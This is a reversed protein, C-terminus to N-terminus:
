NKEGLAKYEFKRLMDEAGEMQDGAGGLIESSVLFYSGDALDSQVHAAPESDVEGVAVPSQTVSRSSEESPRPAAQAESEQREERWPSSGTSEPRAAEEDDGASVDDFGHPGSSPDFALEASPSTALGSEAVTGLTAADESSVGGM